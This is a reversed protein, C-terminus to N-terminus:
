HGSKGNYTMLPDVRSVGAGRRSWVMKVSIDLSLVTHADKTLAVVCFWSKDSEFTDKKILSSSAGPM